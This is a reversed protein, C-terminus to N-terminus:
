GETRGTACAHTTADRRASNPATQAANQIRRRIFWDINGSGEKGRWRWKRKRPWYELTDGLLDLTQLGDALKVWSRRKRPNDSRLAGHRGRKVCDIMNQSLSGSSMHGPNCCRPNDCDHLVYQDPAAVELSSIIGFAHAIVRHTLRLKRGIKIRGYGKASTANQWEWCGSVTNVRCEHLVSDAASHAWAGVRTGDMRPPAGEPWKPLWRAMQAQFADEISVGLTDTGADKTGNPCTEPFPTPVTCDPARSSM